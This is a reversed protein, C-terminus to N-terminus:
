RRGSSKTLDSWRAHRHRKGIVPFLRVLSLVMWAFGYFLAAAIVLLGAIMAIAGAIQLVV